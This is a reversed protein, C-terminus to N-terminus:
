FYTLLKDLQADRFANAVDDAVDYAADVDADSSAYANNFVANTADDAVSYVIDLKDGVAVDAATCAADHVADHAADHASYFTDTSDSIDVTYNDIDVADRATLLEEKTAEGNIYREAVNCVEVIREDPNEFLKLAERACWVAFLKIKKKSMFEKRLLLWFIDDAPVIKRYKQVWDKVTLEENEDTIFGSHDYYPDFRRIIENSITKYM